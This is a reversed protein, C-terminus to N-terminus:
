VNQIFGSAKSSLLIAELDLLIGFEKFVRERVYDILRMVDSFSANYRNIIFNAHKESIVAGGIRYGKLGLEDILKGAFNNKPNKFICGASRENLPQTNARRKMLDATIEKILNKNSYELNFSAELIINVQSNDFNRYNFSLDKKSLIKLENHSNLFTINKLVDKIEKGFAGANTSIAGGVSGPIGSIFELGSLSNNAAKQCLHSLPLGAGAEIINEKIAFHNLYKTSVFIIDLPEDDIILNSGNGIIKYLFEKETLFILLKQFESSTKPHIMFPAYGGIGITTYDKLSVDRKHNINNQLLFNNVLEIKKMIM